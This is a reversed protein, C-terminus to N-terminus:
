QKEDQHTKTAIKVAEDFDHKQKKAAKAALTKEHSERIEQIEATYSKIVQERDALDMRSLDPMTEIEPDEYTPVREGSMPLGQAYRRMIEDVSMSQDPITESPQNNIEYKQQTFDYTFSTNYNTM